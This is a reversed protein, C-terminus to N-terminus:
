LQQFCQPFLLLNLYSDVTMTTIFSLESRNPQDEDNGLQDSIRHAGNTVPPSFYRARGPNSGLAEPIGDRCDVVSSGFWM